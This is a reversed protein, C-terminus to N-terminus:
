DPMGPTLCFPHGAPDIMVRWRDPQPQTGAVAAGLGVARQQGADLDDVALDLHSQQPADADPWRPPRHDAVRQLSLWVGPSLRIGAFDASSYALELGLLAAYFAGLEAPDPCDLSVAAFRAPADNTPVADTPM